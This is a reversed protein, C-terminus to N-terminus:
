ALGQPPLLGVAGQAVHNTAPQQEMSSRAPSISNGGTRRWMRPCHRVPRGRGSVTKISVVDSAIGSFDSPGISIWGIRRVESAFGM